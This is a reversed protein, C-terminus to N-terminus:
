SQPLVGADKLAAIISNIASRAESDITTGGTPATPAAAVSWGGRFLLLQGTSRDLLRM